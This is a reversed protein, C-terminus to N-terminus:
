DGFYKSIAWPCMEREVVRESVSTDLRSVDLRCGLCPALYWPPTLLMVDCVALIPPVCILALVAQYTTSLLVKCFAFLIVDAKLRLRTGDRGQLYLSGSALLTVSSPQM